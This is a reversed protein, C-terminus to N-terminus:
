VDEEKPARALLTEMASRVPIGDWIVAAVQTAIPLEVQHRHGLAVAARSTWAGEAVTLQRRLYQLPRENNAIALGLARNRGHPSYATTLLDGIGALGAFTGDQAGMARGLRRMEALGRTIMVAKLNDGLGLGEVIGAAVAIVNKLAGGLEAGVLDTGTYVRCGRGHLRSQMLQGAQVPGAALLGVPMGAVVEAAHSPGTLTAIPREGLEAQLIESVRCLTEEELGKALSIVPVGPPILSALRKAQTRTHQTPVAWLILDADALVSTDATIPLDPPLALDGLQPHRSFAALEHVKDPDRGLLTVTGPECRHLM